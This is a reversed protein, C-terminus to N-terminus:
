EGGRALRSTYVHAAWREPARYGRSRGLAVLEELTKAMAQERLQQRRLAVVDVEELEGDVKEVERRIVPYVYGCYPCAPAPEHCALCEPCQKVREESAGKAKRERGELTWSREEDPLGHRMTNGAHDLIIAHTKGPVPRLARGVQQLHLGLSQTPRLLIVGEIAPVDFGEGFLDVNVLVDLEGRTFADIAQQRKFRDTTGDLSVARVGAERFQAATEESAQVSTCFAVARKGLMRRRYERVADGVVQRQRMIEDLEEKAFDGARSRVKALDVAQRPAFVRYDSLYGREILWRVAPGLVLEEFLEDLGKGDLREPTATLGVHKAKGFHERVKRWGGAATHHAEDWVVLGPHPIKELRSKLTDVSCILAGAHPQFPFGAACFGHQIGVKEFTAATQKVLEIRHCVFLSRIGRSWATGIMSASLATKGAGTPAQLLIAQHSRLAARARDIMDRQYDRLVISM